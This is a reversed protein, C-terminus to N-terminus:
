FYSEHIGYHLSYVSDPSLSCRHSGIRCHGQMLASSGERDPSCPWEDAYYCLLVMWGTM